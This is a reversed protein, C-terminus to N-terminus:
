FGYGEVDGYRTYLLGTGDSGTADRGKGRRNGKINRGSEEEEEEDARREARGDM